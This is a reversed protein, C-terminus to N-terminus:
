ELEELGEEVLDRIDEVKSEIFDCRDAIIDYKVEPDLKRSAHDDIHDLDARIKATLQKVKDEFSM